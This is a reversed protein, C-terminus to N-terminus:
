HSTPSFSQQSVLGFTQRAWALDGAAGQTKGTDNSFKVTGYGNSETMKVVMNLPKYGCDNTLNTGWGFGVNIRKSFTEHLKLILDVDLSDSFIITKSMPNIRMSEYFAIAQDGFLFPDGSDQRLGTWTEAQDKTFHEFFYSSGYQDTLAILMSPKDGYIRAWDELVYQHSKSAHYKDRYIGQYAMYLEHAFTGVPKLGLDMAMWVNSTGALICPDDKALLFLLLGHWKESFRRRTGFDVIQIGADQLKKEKIRLRDLGELIVNTFSRKDDEMCTSFYMENIVNMIFTEWFTTVWWPGSVEIKPSLSSDFDVHPIPLTAGSLENVYEEPFMTKLYEIEQDTFDLMRISKLNDRLGAMSSAMQSLRYPTDGRLILEFKVPVNKHLKWAFYSMTFKYLDTDTLRSVM